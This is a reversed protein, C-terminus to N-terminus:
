RNDYQLSYLKNEFYEKDNQRLNGLMNKLILLLTTLRQQGDLVEFIGEDRKKVVLPQLYYSENDDNSNSFQFIDNLLDLVQKKEWRYGRQYSPIVFHYNGDLLDSVSIPMPKSM